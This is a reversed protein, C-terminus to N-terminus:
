LAAATEAWACPAAPLLRSTLSGVEPLPVRVGPDTVPDSV